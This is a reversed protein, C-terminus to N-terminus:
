AGEQPDLDDAATRLTEALQKREQADLLGLDITTPGDTVQVDLYDANRKIIFRM